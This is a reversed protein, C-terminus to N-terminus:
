EVEEEVLQIYTKGSPKIPPNWHWRKDSGLGCPKNPDFVYRNKIPGDWGNYATLWIAEDSPFTHTGVPIDIPPCAIFAADHQTSDNRIDAYFRSSLGKKIDHNMIAFFGAVNERWNWIQKRPINATADTPSGTIQFVGYGGPLGSGDNNWTPRGVDNVHIPLEYFQNYLDTGTSSNKGKSEHKAIAYAFWLSGQPGAYPQAQIYAKCKADDPNKGGIRFDIVTDPLITTTGSKLKYTLTADGGFFGEGQLPYENWIQWTDSTVPKFSGDAPIKVTDTNGDKDTRSPHRAGNGREYKVELKAEITIGPPLGPMRFELQPMRPAPNQNSTHADIWAINQNAIPKTTDWPTITVDDGTDAHDKIDRVEVALVSIALNTSSSGCSASVTINSAANTAFSVQVSSVGQSAGVFSAGTGSLSWHPWNSPFTQGTPDAQV